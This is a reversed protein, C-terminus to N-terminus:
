ITKDLKKMLRNQSFFKMFTFRAFKLQRKNFRKDDSFVWDKLILM